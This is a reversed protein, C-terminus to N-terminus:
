LLQYSFTYKNQTNAKYIKHCNSIYTAQKTPKNLEM